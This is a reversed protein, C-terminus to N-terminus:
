LRGRLVKSLLATAVALHTEPSLRPGLLAAQGARTLLREDYSAGECRRRLEPVLCNFNATRSPKLAPGLPDYVLSNEHFSVTSGVAAYLVIFGEREQNTTECVTKTTRTPMLGSTLVARGLSFSRTKVMDTSTSVAIGVGRLILRIDRFPVDHCDGRRSEVHLTKDRFEFKRVVPRGTEADMDEKTAITAHFGGSELKGLLKRAREPEGFVAVVFPGSGPARLRALAEFETVGLAAALAAARELKDEKLSHIAVVNV